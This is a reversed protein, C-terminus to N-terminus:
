WELSTGVAGSSQAAKGLAARIQFLLGQCVLLRQFEGSSMKLTVAQPLSIWM